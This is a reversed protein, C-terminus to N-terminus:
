CCGYPYKPNKELMEKELNARHKVQNELDGNKHLMAPRLAEGTPLAFWLSAPLGSVKFVVTGKSAGKIGEAYPLGDEECEAEKELRRILKEICARVDIEVKMESKHQERLRRNEEREIERQARDLEKTVANDVKNIQKELWAEM